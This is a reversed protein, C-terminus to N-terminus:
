GCTRRRERPRVEIAGQTGPARPPRSLWWTSPGDPLSVEIAGTFGRRTYFRRNAETSTELCCPVGSADAERLVPDLVATGLGSGWRDPHTALVGLYWYPTQPSVAGLASNYADLRRSAETGASARYRAWIAEARTAPAERSSPSECMAVSAADPSIWVEAREIRVDFLAGAFLPAVKEYQGGLLFQWAPDRAFAATVTALVMSRDEREARRVM